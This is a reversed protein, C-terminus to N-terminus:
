SCVSSNTSQLGCWERIDNYVLYGEAVTQGGGFAEIGRKIDKPSADTRRALTGVFKLSVGNEVYYRVDDAPFGQDTLTEVQDLAMGDGVEIQWGRVSM